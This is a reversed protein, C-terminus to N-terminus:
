GCRWRQYFDYFLQELYKSLTHSFIETAEDFQINTNQTKRHDIKKAVLVCTYMVSAYLCTCSIYMCVCM